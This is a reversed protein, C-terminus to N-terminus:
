EIADPLTFRFCSGKGLGESEVTISGNYQEVIRKVLALGLGSGPANVDLKEFLGFIKDQYRPEIGAGNDCVYFERDKGKGRSGIRIVPNKTRDSFKVANDILNQWVQVLRSRDAKLEFVDVSVEINVGKQSIGGAVLTIAEEVMERWNLVVAPKTLQGVRSFELLEELMSYMKETATAIYAIDAAVREADAVQMDEQLYSLFTRITVLPSKLDHSIMYTFHVIETNKESLSARTRQVCETMEDFSSALAGIENKQKFGLRFEYDGAAIRQTAHEFDRLPRLISGRTFRWMFVLKALMAVLMLTIAIHLIHWSQVSQLRSALNLDIASDIVDQIVLTLASFSRAVFVAEEASNVAKINAAPAVGTQFDAYIANASEINKRIRELKVRAAPQIIELAQLEGRISRIKRQWQDSSRSDRFLITEFGFLRLEAASRMLQETAQIAQRDATIDRDAFFMVGGVLAVLLSGSALLTYVQTKIKM